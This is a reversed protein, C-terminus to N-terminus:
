AGPYVSECDKRDFRTLLFKLNISEIFRNLGVSLANFLTVAVAQLAEQASELGRRQAM